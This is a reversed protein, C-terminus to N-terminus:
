YTWTHELVRLHAWCPLWCPVWGAKPCWSWCTWQLNNSSTVQTKAVRTKEQNASQKNGIVTERKATVSEARIRRFYPVWCTDFSTGVCGKKPPTASILFLVAPGPLRSEGRWQSGQIEWFGVESIRLLLACFRFRIRGFTVGGWGM